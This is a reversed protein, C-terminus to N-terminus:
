MMGEDPGLGTGHGSRTQPKGEPPRTADRPKVGGPLRDRVVGEHREREGTDPIWRRDLKRLWRRLLNLSM